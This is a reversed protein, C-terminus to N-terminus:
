PSPCCLLIVATFKMPTATYFIAFKITNQSKISLVGGSLWIGRFLNESTSNEGPRNLHQLLLSPCLLTLFGTHITLALHCLWWFGRLCLTIPANTANRIGVQVAQKPFGMGQCASRICSTQFSSYGLSLTTKPVSQCVSFAKSHGTATNLQQVLDATSANRQQLLSPCKSAGRTRDHKSKHLLQFKTLDPAWRGDALQLCLTFNTPSNYYFLKKQVM